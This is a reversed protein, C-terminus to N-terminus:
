RWWGRIMLLDALICAIRGNADGFPHISSFDLVFHVVADRIAQAEHANALLANLRSVIKEMAEPVEEPSVTPITTGPFATSDV